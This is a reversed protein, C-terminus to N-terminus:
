QLQDLEDALKASFKDLQQDSLVGKLDRITKDNLFLTWGNEADPPLQRESLFTEFEPTADINTPLESLVKRLRSEQEGTVELYRGYWLVQEEVGRSTSALANRAEQEQEANLGLARSLYLAERQIQEEIARDNRATIEEEIKDARVEGIISSLTPLKALADDYAAGDLSRRMLVEDATFYDILKLEEAHTITVFRKVEALRRRVGSQIDETTLASFEDLVCASGEGKSARPEAESEGAPIGISRLKAYGSASLPESNNSEAARAKAPQLGSEVPPPKASVTRLVYLGFVLTVVIAYARWRDTSEEFM